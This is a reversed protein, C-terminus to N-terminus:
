DDGDTDEQELITILKDTEAHWAPHVNGGSAFAEQATELLGKATQLKAELETAIADKKALLRNYTTIDCTHGTQFDGNIDPGMTGCRYRYSTVYTRVIPESCFPCEKEITQIKTDTM